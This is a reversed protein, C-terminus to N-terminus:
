EQVYKADHRLITVPCAAHTMIYHSVSGLVMQWMKGYGRSGCVLLSPKLEAVANTIAKGIHKADTNKVPLAISCGPLVPDLEVNAKMVRKGKIQREHMPAGRVATVLKSRINEMLMQSGFPKSGKPYCSVFIVATDSLNLNDKVFNAIHMGSKDSDVAAVVLREFGFRILTQRVDTLSAFGKWTTWGLKVGGLRVLAVPNAVDGPENVPATRNRAAFMPEYREKRPEVPHDETTIVASADAMSMVSDKKKEEAAEHERQEASPRLQRQQM